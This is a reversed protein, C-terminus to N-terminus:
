GQVESLENASEDCDKAAINAAANLFPILM